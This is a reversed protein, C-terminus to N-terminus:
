IKADEKNRAYRFTVTCCRGRRGKGKVVQESFHYKHAVARANSMLPKELNCKQTHGAVITEGDKEEKEEEEWGGVTMVSNAMKGDRKAPKDGFCIGRSM